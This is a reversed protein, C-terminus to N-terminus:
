SCAFRQGPHGQRMRVRGCSGATSSVYILGRLPTQRQRMRVRGTSGETSGGIPGRLSTRPPTSAHPGQWQIRRHLEMHPWLAIDQTANVSAPGAM